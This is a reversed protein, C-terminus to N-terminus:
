FGEFIDVNSAGGRKLFLYCISNKEGVGGGRFGLCFSDVFNDGAFDTFLLFLFRLLMDEVCACVNLCCFLHKFM